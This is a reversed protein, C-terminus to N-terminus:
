TDNERYHPMDDQTDDPTDLVAEAADEDAQAEACTPCDGDVLASGCNPCNM